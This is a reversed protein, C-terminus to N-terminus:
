YGRKKIKELDAQVMIRALEDFKVKPEWGLKSKAKAPDGILIYVETPRYYTPDIKTLTKRTERDRGFKPNNKKL